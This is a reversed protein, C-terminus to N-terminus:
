SELSRTRRSLGSVVLGATLLFLGLIAAAGATRSGTDPLTPPNPAESAVNPAITTTTSTPLPFESGVLTTTVATTTAAETTTAADTPIPGYEDTTTAADTPIPGYEDTTAPAQATAITTAGLGGLTAGGLTLMAGAVCLSRGLRMRTFM